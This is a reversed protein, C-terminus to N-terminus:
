VTVVNEEVSQAFRLLTGNCDVVSFEYLGWPKLELQGSPEIVGATQYEEYLTELNGVIIYCSFQNTLPTFQISQTLHFTTEDRQFILYGEENYITRFGLKKEYFEITAALDQVPLIPAAGFLKAVKGM